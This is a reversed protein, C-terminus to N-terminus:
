EIVTIGQREQKRVFAIEVVSLILMILEILCIQKWNKQSIIGSYFFALAIGGIVLTALTIATSFVTIRFIKQNESKVTHLYTNFERIQEVMQRRAGDMNETYAKVQISAQQLVDDRVMDVMMKRQQILSKDLEKQVNDVIKGSDDKYKEMVMVMDILLNQIRESTTELENM